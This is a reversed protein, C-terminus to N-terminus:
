RSTLRKIEGRKLAYYSVANRVERSTMRCPCLPEDGQPGRCACPRGEALNTLEAVDGRQIAEDVLEKRSKM